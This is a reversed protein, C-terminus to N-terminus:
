NKAKLHQLSNTPFTSRYLVIGAEYKENPYLLKRKNELDLKARRHGKSCSLAMRQNIKNQYCFVEDESQEITYDFDELKSIM